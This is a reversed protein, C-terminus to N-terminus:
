CVGCQGLVSKHLSYVPGYELLFDETIGRGVIVSAEDVFGHDVPGQSVHYKLKHLQNRPYIGLRRFLFSTMRQGVNVEGHCM